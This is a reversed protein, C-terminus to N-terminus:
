NEKWANIKRGSNSMILIKIKEVEEGRAYFRTFLMTLNRM